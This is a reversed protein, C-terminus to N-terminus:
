AALEGIREKRNSKRVNAPSPILKTLPIEQITTHM